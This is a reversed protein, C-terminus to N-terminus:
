PESIALRSGIDHPVPYPREPPQLRRARDIRGSGLFDRMEHVRGTIDELGVIWENM